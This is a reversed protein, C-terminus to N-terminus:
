LAMRRQLRGAFRRVAQVCRAAPGPQRVDVVTGVVMDPLIPEDEAGNGDGKCIFRQEGGGDDVRVLRHVVLCGGRRFAVVEGVQPTRRCCRLRFRSGSRITPEMSEGSLMLWVERQDQQWLECLAALRAPDRTVIAAATM